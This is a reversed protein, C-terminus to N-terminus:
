ISRTKFMILFNYANHMYKFKVSNWKKTNASLVSYM